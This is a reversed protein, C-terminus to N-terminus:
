PQRRTRADLNSHMERFQDDESYGPMDVRPLRSDVIDTRVVAPRPRTLFNPASPDTGPMPSSQRPPAIDEAAKDLDQPHEERIERHTATREVTTKTYPTRDEQNNVGLIREQRQRQTFKMRGLGSVLGSSVSEMITRMEACKIMADDRESQLTVVQSRLHTVEMEMLANARRLNENEISSAYLDAEMQQVAEGTLRQTM